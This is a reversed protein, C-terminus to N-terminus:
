GNRGLFTSRLNAIGIGLVIVYLYAILVYFPFWGLFWPKGNTLTSIPWISDAWRRQYLPTIALDLKTLSTGDIVMAGQEALNKQATIVPGTGPAITPIDLILRLTETPVYPDRSMITQPFQISLVGNQAARVPAYTTVLDFPPGDAYRLHIPLELNADDPRGPRIRIALGVFNPLSTTFSQEITQIGGLTLEQGDPLDADSVVDVTTISSLGVVLLAGILVIVWYRYRFPFIDSM